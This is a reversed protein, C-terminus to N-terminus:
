LAGAECNVTFDEALGIVHDTEVLENEWAATEDPATQCKLEVRDDIWQQVYPRDISSVKSKMTWFDKIKNQVRQENQNYLEVATFADKISLAVDVTKRDFKAGNDLLAKIIKFRSTDITNNVNERRFKHAIVQTILKLSEGTSRWPKVKANLRPKTGNYGENLIKEVQTLAKKPKTGLLGIAKHLMANVEKTRKLPGTMDGHLTKNTESLYGMSQTTLLRGIRDFLDLHLDAIKPGHPKPLRRRPLPSIPNNSRSRRGRLAAQIKTAGSGERAYEEELDEMQQQRYEVEAVSMDRTGLKFKAGETYDKYADHVDVDKGERYFRSPSGFDVQITRM